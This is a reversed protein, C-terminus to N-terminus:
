AAEGSPNGPSTKIVYPEGRDLLEFLPQVKSHMIKSEEPVAQERQLSTQAEGDLLVCKGLTPQGFGHWQRWSAVSKGARPDGLRVAAGRDIARQALLPALDIYRNCDEIRTLSGETWAIPKVTWVRELVAKPPAPVPAPARRPIPARGEFVSRSIGKAQDLAVAGALELEVAASHAYKAIAGLDFAVHEIETAAQSLTRLAALAGPLAKEFSM